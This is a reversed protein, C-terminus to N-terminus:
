GGGGAGHGRARGAPLGPEPEGRCPRHSGSSRPAGAPPCGPLAQAALARERGGGSNNLLGRQALGARM